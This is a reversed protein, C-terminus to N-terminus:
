YHMPIIPKCMNFLRGSNSAGDNKITKFRCIFRRKMGRGRGAVIMAVRTIVGNAM